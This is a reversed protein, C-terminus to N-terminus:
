KGGGTMFIPSYNSSKKTKKNKVKKDKGGETKEEYNQIKDWDKNLIVFLM